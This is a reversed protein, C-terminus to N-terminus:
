LRDVGGRVFYMFIGIFVLIILATVLALTLVSNLQGLPLQSVGNSIGGMFVDVSSTATSLGGIAGVVLVGLTDPILPNAKVNEIREKTQLSINHIKTLGGQMETFSSNDYDTKGYDVAGRSIFIMFATLVVIMFVLGILIGSLKM